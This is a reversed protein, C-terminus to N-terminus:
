PTFTRYYPCGSYNACLAHGKIFSEFHLREPSHPDEGIQFANNSIPKLKQPHGPPLVVLLDGKRFIVRFNSMWPNHSRYHGLYAKWAAPIEFTIQGIYRESPYWVPGHFAGVVKNKEDRHFDLLFLAFDPHRVYFSDAGRRELAVSEAGYHLILQDGEALLNLMKSEMRYTGVYDVANEIKCPDTVPPLSPIKTNQQVAHLLKLAFQAIDFTCHVDEPGNVLVVAGIGDEMDALIYSSYGLTQGGHGLFTCGDIKRITLGYGYFIGQRMENMPHTLLRFSEESLIRKGPTQGRNLLMRVYAAMDAPTSAPSGDGTGYEHWTAQVLPHSSHAPRDDYLYRYGKAMSKRTEYTMVAHTETMGLPDLLSSQLIDAYPRDLLEELLFGLAKYGLDSYYFDKGPPFATETERLAFIEYLGHPAIDTGNIIGATHSMLHHVTIPQYKSKVQFWPLYHVVPANLDLRGTERQMLLLISTFSKGISGAEFLTGPTVPTQAAIDSFGYTSVRLLKKRDTLAVSMGVLNAEKMKLDIYLDLRNYADQFRSM